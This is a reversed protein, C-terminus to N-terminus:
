LLLQVRERWAEPLAAAVRRRIESHGYKMSFHKLVLCEVRASEAREALARAIADLHTHGYRAARPLEDDRLFTCELVLVPSEWIADRALAEATHDGLFTLRPTWVERDIVTGARRLRGLEPGALEAYEPLLERKKARVTYGLSTVRHPVAFAELELTPRYAVRQGDELGVFEPAAYEGRPIDELAAHATVVAEFREVLAAPLFVRSRGKMGTMARLGAHRLVGHAHDAHAHSLAITTRALTSLPCVGLDFLLELEAVDLWTALGSRSFGRLRLSGADLEVAMLADLPEGPHPETM